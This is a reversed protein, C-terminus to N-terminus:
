ESPVYKKQLHRARLKLIPIDGRVKIIKHVAAYEARYGFECEYVEGWLAVEGYVDAYCYERRVHEMTKFAHFGGGWYGDLDHAREIVGPKWVYPVYMAWLTGRCLKWARYAIIEGARIGADKFTGDSAPTHNITGTGFDVTFAGMDAPGPAVTSYSSTQTTTKRYGGNPHGELRHPDFM